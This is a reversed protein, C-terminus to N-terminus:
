KRSWIFPLSWPGPPSYSFSFFYIDSIHLRQLTEIILLYSISSNYSSLSVGLLLRQIVDEPLVATHKHGFHELMLKQHQVLLNSGAMEPPDAIVVDKAALSLLNHLRADPPLASLFSSYLHLLICNCLTCLFCGRTHLSLMGDYEAQAQQILVSTEKTPNELLVKLSAEAAQVQDTKKTQLQLLSYRTLCTDYHFRLCNSISPYVPFCM